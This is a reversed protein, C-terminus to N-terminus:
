THANNLFPYVSDLEANYYYEFKVPYYFFVSYTYPLLYGYYIGRAVTIEQPFPEPDVSGPPTTVERGM